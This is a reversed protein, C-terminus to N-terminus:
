PTQHDVRHALMGGWEADSMELSRSVIHLQIEVGGVEPDVGGAAKFWLASASFASSGLTIAAKSRAFLWWDLVAKELQKHKNGSTNTTGYRAAVIPHMAVGSTLIPEDLM